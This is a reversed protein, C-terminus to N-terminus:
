SRAFSCKLSSSSTFSASAAAVMLAQFRSTRVKRHRRLQTFAVGSNCILILGCRSGNPSITARIALATREEAARKDLRRDYRLEARKRSEYEISDGLVLPHAHSCAM